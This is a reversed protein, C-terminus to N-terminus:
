KTVASKWTVISVTSRCTSSATSSGALWFLVFSLPSSTLLSATCARTNECWAIDGEVFSGSQVSTYPQFFTVYQKAAENWFETPREVAKHYLTRYADMSAVHAGHAVREPVGFLENEEARFVKKGNANSGNNANDDDDDGGVKPKKSQHEDSVAVFDRVTRPQLPRKKTNNEHLVVFSIM